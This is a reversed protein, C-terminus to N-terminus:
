WNEDAGPNVEGGVVAQPERGQEDWNPAPMPTQELEVKKEPEAVAEPVSEKETVPQPAPEAAPEPASEPAQESPSAGRNKWRLYDMARDVSGENSISSKFRLAVFAYLGSWKGDQNGVILGDTLGHVYNCGIQLGTDSAVPFEFGAGVLGSLENRNIDYFANTSAGASTVTEADLLIGYAAGFGFYSRWNPKDTFYWRLQASTELYTARTLSGSNQVGKQSVFVGPSFVWSSSLYNEGFAGLYIGQLYDRKTGSLDNSLNQRFSSMGGLFGYSSEGWMGWSLNSFVYTLCLFAKLIKM